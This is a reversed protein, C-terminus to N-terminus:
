CKRFHKRFSFIETFTISLLNTIQKGQSSNTILLVIIWLLIIILLIVVMCACCCIRFKISKLISVHEMQLNKMRNSGASITPTWPDEDNIAIKPVVPEM